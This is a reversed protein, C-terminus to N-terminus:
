YNEDGSSNIIKKYSAEFKQLKVVRWYYSHICRYIQSLWLYLRGHKYLVLSRGRKLERKM